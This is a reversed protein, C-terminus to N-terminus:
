REFEANSGFKFLKREIPEMGYWPVFANYFSRWTTNGFGLYCLTMVSHILTRHVKASVRHFSLSIDLEVHFCDYYYFFGMRLFLAERSSVM